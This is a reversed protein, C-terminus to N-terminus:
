FHCSADKKKLSRTVGIYDILVEFPVLFNLLLPPLHASLSPPLVAEDVTPILLYDQLTSHYEHEQPQTTRTEEDKEAVPFVYNFWGYQYSNRASSL